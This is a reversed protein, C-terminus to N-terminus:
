RPAPWYAPIVVCVLIILNAAAWGACTLRSLKTSWFPLSKLGMALLVVIAPLAPFLYRGQPQDFDINLELVVMLSLAVISLLLLSLKRDLQGKLFGRMWSWCGFGLLLFYVAYVWKPLLLNMWGFMGVFSAAFVPVNAVFYPSWLSKVRVEAGLASHLATRAFFDGYLHDNRVLWPSVMVLVLSGLAAARLLKTRWNAKDLFIALAFPVPLFAASMKSLFAGAIAVAALVGSKWDFGRKVLLVMLYTAAACFATLLADNSVNMGRFTFEPLFAALNGALLGSAPSGLAESAALYCLLVTCLSILVTLLRAARIPWYREFDGPANHFFRPPATSIRIHDPSYTYTIKPVPCRWALPAM